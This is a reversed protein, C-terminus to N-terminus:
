QLIVEGDIKFTYPTTFDGRHVSQQLRSEARRIEPQRTARTEMRPCSCELDHLYSVAIEDFRINTSRFQQLLSFTVKHKSASGIKGVSESQAITRRFYEAIM